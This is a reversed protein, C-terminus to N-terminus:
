RTGGGGGGFGGGSFGGGSFGGGSFGGSSFGGGSSRNFNKRSSNVPIKKSTMYNNASLISSDLHRAFSISNHYRTDTIYWKPQEFSISEFKKIWTNSVGLVYTYPMIDFFYYPNEMVLAELKQKEATQLFRKFGLIRGLMTTGYTTRRCIKNFYIFMLIISIFNIIFATLYFSDYIVDELVMTIPMAVAIIAFLANLIDGLSTIKYGSFLTYGFSMFFGIASAGLMYVLGPMQGYAYYLKAIVLCYSAFAIIPICLSIFVKTKDFIKFKNKISNINSLIKNITRYFKNHLSSLEVETKNQKFLGDLFLKENEDTGDYEKLKTLTITTKKSLLKNSNKETIKIYGKSALYVLLSTVNNTSATGNYILAIDLSNLGDPPYFEIADVIKANSFKRFIMFSIAVFLIPLIFIAIDIFDRNLGTNVFYGKPLECRITLAEGPTLIENCHGSITTNDCKYSIHKSTEVGALGSTFGVKSHDFERPMNICFSVNEIPLSWDTGIINFYFEDYKSSVPKGLNYSYNIVYTHEGLAPKPIPMELYYFGNEVSISCDSSVNINGVQSLNISSKGDARITHNVLPIFRFFVEQPIHCVITITEKIDLINNENVNVDVDYQKITVPYNKEITGLMNDKITNEIDNLHNLEKDYDPVGVNNIIDSINDIIYGDNTAYVTSFCIHFFLIIYILLLFKKKIM